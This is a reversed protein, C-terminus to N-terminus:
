CGERNCYQIPKGKNDTLNTLNVIKASIWRSHSQAWRQRASISNTLALIGSRQCAADANITQELTLDITLRSFSKSPRKLAFCGKQFDQYVQPHSEKLKLLNDHYIVLWRAYNHHNFIFFYSTLKPLCHIYLDLDGTRISRIFDHYLQMMEVYGYWFRATIGHKGEKTDNKYNDYKSFLGMVKENFGHDPFKKSQKSIELVTKLDELCLLEDEELTLEFSRFHLIEM